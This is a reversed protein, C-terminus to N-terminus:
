RQKWAATRGRVPALGEPDQTITGTAQQDRAEVQEEAAVTLRGVATARQLPQTLTRSTLILALASRHVKPETTKRKM